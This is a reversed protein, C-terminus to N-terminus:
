SNGTLDGKPEADGAGYNQSHQEGKGEVKAKTGDSILEAGVVTERSICAGLQPSYQVDNHYSASHKKQANVTM